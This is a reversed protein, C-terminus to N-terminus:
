ARGRGQGRNAKTKSTNVARLQGLNDFPFYRPYAGEKEGRLHECFIKKFLCVEPLSRSNSLYISPMNLWIYENVLHIFSFLGYLHPEINRWLPDCARSPMPDRQFETTPMPILRTNLAWQNVLMYRIHIYLRLLFCVLPLNSKM